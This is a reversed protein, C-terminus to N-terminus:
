HCRKAYAGFRRASHAYGQAQGKHFGGATAIWYGPTMNPCQSTHLVRWPSGLQNVRTRAEGQIRFSGAIAYWDGGQHVPAPVPVPRPAGGAGIVICQGGSLTFGPPCHPAVVQPGAGAGALAFILNDQRHRTVHCGQGRIPATGNLIISNGQRRGTVAYTVVGCRASFLRAQGSIVGNADEFGDFLLSGPRAGQKAIGPRPQTYSISISGSDCAQIEMISGNHIYEDIACASAHALPTALLFALLAPVASFLRRM